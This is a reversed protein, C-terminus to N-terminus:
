REKPKKIPPQKTAQKSRKHSSKGSRKQAQRIKELEKRVSPRDDSSGTTIDERTESSPASLRSKADAGKRPTPEEQKPQNVGMLQDLFEEEQLNEVKKSKETNGKPVQKEQQIDRRVEAVDVTALNFREFIRNIKSADEARVMLDTMGDTADKDKLVCYLVGYKKAEKCFKKLEDDRIAFVKIPKESRLMTTLRIKGRTRKQDKLVAYIMVALKEACQGTIKAAIEVGGLSMRIVQEAADGATNM